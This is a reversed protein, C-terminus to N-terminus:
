KESLRQSASFASSFLLISTRYRVRKGILRHIIEFIQLYFLYKLCCSMLRGRREQRAGRRQSLEEPNRNM